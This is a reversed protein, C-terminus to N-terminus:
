GKGGPLDEGCYPCNDEETSVMRGCNRCLKRKREEREELARDIEGEEKEWGCEPCVEEGELITGCEPCFDELGKEKKELGETSRRKSSKLRRRWWVLSVLLLFILIPSTLRMVFINIYATERPINMPGFTKDTEEWTTGETGNIRLSFHHDYRREELSTVKYFTGNSGNISRMTYNYGQTTETLEGSNYTLNVFVTYNDIDEEVDDTLIVTFNFETEGDGYLKDVTGETLHESGLDSPTEGYLIHVHYITGISAVLLIAIFGTIIVKKISKDKFFKYPILVAIVSMIISLFCLNIAIIVLPITLLFITAVYILLAYRKEKITKVRNGISDLYGKYGSMIM